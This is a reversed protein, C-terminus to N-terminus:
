EILRILRAHWTVLRNMLQRRCDPSAEYLRRTHTIVAGFLAPAETLADTLKKEWFTKDLFIGGYLAQEALEMVYEEFSEAGARLADAAKILEALWSRRETEASKLLLDGERELDIDVQAERILKILYRDAHKGRLRGKARMAGFIAVAQRIAAPEYTAALWARRQGKADSAMLGLSTYAEDLLALAVPATPLPAAPHRGRQHTAKLNAVLEADKKPDPCAARVVEARSRGNLEARAAHNIGATYARVVEHVASIVLTDHNTNDLVIPGVHQEFLGFQGEVVAKNEPRELTAPIMVSELEVLERLEADWYIPKQDHVLALPPRGLFEWAQTYADGVAAADETPTVVVALHCATAQDVTGQWNFTRSEGTATLSVEIDKGDTVIIAGPTGKVTAGRYRPPKINNSPLMCAIRLVSRVVRPAIGLRRSADRLFDRFKGEWRKYDDVVTRALENPEAGTPWVDRREPRQPPVIPERADLQRWTMLTSWPLKAARCFDEDRGGFNDSVDLIFRKFADSYTARGSAHIVVAGPHELRHELVAIRLDCEALSRYGPDAAQGATAGQRPRGPGPTSVAALGEEFRDKAAYVLPRSVGNAACTAALNSGPEVGLGILCERAVLNLALAAAKDERARQLLSM